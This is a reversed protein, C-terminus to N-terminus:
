ITLVLYVCELVDKLRATDKIGYEGLTHILESLLEDSTRPAVTRSQLSQDLFEKRHEIKEILSEKDKLEEKKTSLIEDINVTFKISDIVM